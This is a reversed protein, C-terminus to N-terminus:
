KLAQYSADEAPDGGLYKVNKGGRVGVQGIDPAPPDNPDRKWATVPMNVKRQAVEQDRRLQSELDHLSADYDEPKQRPDIRAQAVQAKEGEVNSIQGGGKLTNYATLFTKGVIQDNLKGFAYADTEPIQRAAIGALGLGYKSGPHTYAAQISKIADDFMPTAKQVAEVAASAVPAQLESWKELSVNDPKPPLSPINSRQPSQDTGLRPDAGAQPQAQPQAQPAGPGQPGSTIISQPKGLNTLYQGTLDEQAKPLGVKYDTEKLKNSKWLDYQRAFEQDQAAKMETYIQMATAKTQESRYPDAAVRRYHIM